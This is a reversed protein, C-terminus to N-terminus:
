VQILTLNWLDWDRMMGGVAQLRYDDLVAKIEHGAAMIRGVREEVTAEISAALDDQHIMDGLYKDM